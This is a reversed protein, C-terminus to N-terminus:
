QILITEVSIKMITIFILWRRFRPTLSRLLLSKRKRKMQCNYLRARGLLQTFQHETLELNTFLEISSLHNVADYEELVKRVEKYLQDPSSAKIKQKIGDTWIM